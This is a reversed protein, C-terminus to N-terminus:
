SCFSRSIRGKNLILSNLKACRSIEAVMEQLGTPMRDPKMRLMQWDESGTPVAWVGGPPATQIDVTMDGVYLAQEDVNLRESVRSGHAAPKPLPVDEPGLIADFQNALDFHKLIAVSFIRNTQQM